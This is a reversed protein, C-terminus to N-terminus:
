ILQTQEYNMDKRAQDLIEQPTMLLKYYHKNGIKITEIEWLDERMNFIHASIRPIGFDYVFTHSSVLPKSSNKATKLIWEVTQRQKLQPVPQERFYKNFDM